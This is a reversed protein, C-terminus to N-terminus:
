YSSPLKKNAIVVAIKGVLRRTLHRPFLYHHLLPHRSEWQYIYLEGPASEMKGINENPFQLFKRHGKWKNWVQLRMPLDFVKSSPAVFIIALCCPPFTFNWFVDM